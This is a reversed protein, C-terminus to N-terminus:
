PRFRTVLALRQAPGLGRVRRGVPIALETMARDARREGVGPLSELLVRVQMGAVARATDDGGDLLAFAGALDTRGALLDQRLGARVARARVAAAAAERRQEPTRPPPTPV